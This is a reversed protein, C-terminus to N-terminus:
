EVVSRLIDVTTTVNSTMPCVSQAKRLWNRRQKLTSGGLKLMQLWAFSEEQETKQYGDKDCCEGGEAFM